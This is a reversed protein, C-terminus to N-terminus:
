KNFKRVIEPAKRRATDIDIDMGHYTRNRGPRFEVFTKHYRDYTYLYTRDDVDGPYDDFATQLLKNAYSEDRKDYASFPSIEKNGIKRGEQGHKLQVLVPRLSDLYKLLTVDGYPDFNTAPWVYKGLLIHFGTSGIPAGAFIRKSDGNEVMACLQNRVEDRESSDLSAIVDPSTDINRSEPNDMVYEIPLRLLLRYLEASSTINPNMSIIELWNASVYVTVMRPLDALTLNNFAASHPGGSKVISLLPCISIRM